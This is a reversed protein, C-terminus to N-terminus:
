AAARAHWADLRRGEVACGHLGIGALGVNASIKGCDEEAAKQEVCREAPPPGIREGCKAHSGDNGPFPEVGVASFGAGAM